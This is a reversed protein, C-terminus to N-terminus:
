LNDTSFAFSPTLFYLHTQAVPKNLISELARRYILMQSSYIQARNRCQSATIKDTKFDIIEIGADTEFFCDIIGRVLVMEKQNDGSLQAQPYIEEAPLALTFPWERQVTQYHARIQRGLSQTFLKVIDPLPICRRQQDTFIGETTMEELQATLDDLDLPRKLDLRQLFLHTLTGTEAPSSAQPQETLFHPRAQFPEALRDTETKESPIMATPDPQFDPEGTLDFHRKLETASTRAGLVTFAQHPYRFNIRELVGQAKDTLKDPIKAPLLENISKPVQTRQIHLQAASTRTTVKQASYTTLAFRANDINNAPLPAPPSQEEDNALLTQLDQHNALAPGLWDMPSVASSLAFEPLPTRHFFRWPQWRSVASELNVSAILLLRQRARTLAVYLVRMEETILRRDLSQAVVTHAVTPWRDQNVADVVRMGLPCSEARDFLISPRTDSKNFKRALDAVIVVPFELGKSKHISMIRVVNDAETLVPAPGFDGEEARLKEIFRLFRGLGKGAFRDFQRARDHLQILNNYRQRGDALGSVYAPYDTERYIQGILKALGSQRALSRWDNLRNFFQKITQQLQTDPGQDAYRFVAQNFTMEPAHLRLATLQSENLGVLPSRLVSALPIDQQPNDLLKLLCIMDQIETAVFFGGTLEAHVPIRMQHFIESFLQARMKMSRLLIVIDRYQVPRVKGTDRDTINFEPMGGPSDTGVMRRIRQAIIIAERRTTDLEQQQNDAETGSEEVHNNDPTNNDPTNNLPETETINREILHLEVPIDTKPDAPSNKEPDPDDEYDAGYILRAQRDYDIGIFEEAMCRSFIYNVSDIIGRRSRFNKNLDIRAQPPLKDPPNQADAKVATFKNFKDLFIDPDAQRFGYISQKVDGVIFLNGHQYPYGVKDAPEGRSILGIIAEQVPSIDQYEDVLIYRYRDRLQLAIDSPGNEEQLLELCLHELDAFDLVNQQRKSNQYRQVFDQHFNILLNAMPATATIQSIVNNADVNYKQRLAKFDDKAQDIIRKVPEIEEDTMGKPRKPAYPLRQTLDLLQLAKSFDNRDLATLIEKFPTLLDAEVYYTYFELHPYYSITTLAHELRNVIRQLQRRLLKQQQRVAALNEPRGQQLFQLQEQWIQSWHQYDHLSEFFRQMRIVLYILPQDSSGSSYSQVFRSFDDKAGNDKIQAYYDELLEQAIQLKLLDAEDADLMEFDPDVPLRYFFEGLVSRCFSHVTSIRAQDLLAVQRRLNKDSSTRSSKEYLKGSIRRRMEAAAAETYTLVLLENIDCPEPAETLLYICRETLVSTKGAGAAATLLVDGNTARIALQQEPTWNTTSM